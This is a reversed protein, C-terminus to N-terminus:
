VTEFYGLEECLKRAGPLREDLALARRLSRRAAARDGSRLHMEAAKRHFYATDKRALGWDIMQNLCSLVTESRETEPMRGCVIARTREYVDAMFHRFYPRRRESRVIAAYLEFAQLYKGRAEYEEALLFACDMFDEQGLYRFLDFDGTARLSAYLQLAEDPNDHLLDYFVLKSQSEHDDHRNRLFDRYDFEFGSAPTRNFGYRLDYNQRTLPDSLVEWARVLRKMREVSDPTGHHLDPHVSKVQRRYAARVEEATADSSIGLVSYHNNV